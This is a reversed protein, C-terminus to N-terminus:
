PFQSDVMSVLPREATSVDRQRAAQRLLPASKQLRVAATVNNNSFWDSSKHVMPMSFVLGEESVPFRFSQAQLSDHLCVCARYKILFSFLGVHPHDRSNIQLM